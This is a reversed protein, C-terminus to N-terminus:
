HAVFSLLELPHHIIHRAGAAKLEDVPRFGWAAGVGLMGARAAAQMDVGSDGLFLCAEPAVGMAQAAALAQVPDPKKAIGDQQGLVAQFVVKPFYHAVMEGTFRHPKNTVVSVATGQGTLAALLAEIGDYPRTRHHWNQNYDALLAALSSEIMRSSRQEAPLARTMLMRSGDGVFWRFAELPHTPFGQGALVRNVSSGLDALTDLLTGDLDFIVASITM